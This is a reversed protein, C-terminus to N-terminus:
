LKVVKVQVTRDLQEGNDFQVRNTIPQLGLKGNTALLVGNCHSYTNGNDAVVSVDDKQDLIQWGPPLLWVSSQPPAYWAFWIWRREDPDIPEPM